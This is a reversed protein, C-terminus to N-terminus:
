IDDDILPCTDFARLLMYICLSCCILHISIQMLTALFYTMLEISSIQSYFIRDRSLVIHDLMEACVGPDITYDHM